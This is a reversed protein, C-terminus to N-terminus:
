CGPRPVHLMVVRGRQRLREHPQNLQLETSNKEQCYRHNGCHETEDENHANRSKYCPDHKKDKRNQENGEQHQM